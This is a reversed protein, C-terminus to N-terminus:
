VGNPNQLAIDRTRSKPAFNMLGAPRIIAACREDPAAIPPLRQEGRPACGWTPSQLTRRWDRQNQLLDAALLGNLQEAVIQIRETEVGPKWCGSNQEL